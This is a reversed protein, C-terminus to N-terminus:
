PRSALERAEEGLRDILPRAGRWRMATAEDYGGSALAPTLWDFKLWPTAAFVFRVTREDGAWAADSLGARYGTWVARELEDAEEIAVFGDLIADPVFNGPDEGLTGLGCYAWDVLIPADGDGFLNGPYFDIHCFTQPGAEVAALMRRREEGLPGTLERRLDLYASLWRRSLWRETPLSTTVAGQMRGLGRAARGYWEISSPPEPLAELWLAISGDPRECIGRCRPGRVGGPLRELLGSEYVCAERRWYYPHSSDADAPWRRSGNPDHHVLKLVAADSGTRVLWVGATAAPVGRGLSEAEVPTDRV